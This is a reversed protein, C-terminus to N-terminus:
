PKHLSYKLSSSYSFSFFSELSFKCSEQVKSYGRFGLRCDLGLTKLTYKDFTYHRVTYATDYICHESTLRDFKNM